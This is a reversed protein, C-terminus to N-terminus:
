RDRPADSDPKSADDGFVPEQWAGVLFVIGISAALFLGIETYDASNAGDVAIRPVTELYMMALAGWLACQLGGFRGLWSTAALVSLLFLVSEPRSGLAGRLSFQVILAAASLVLPACVRVWRPPRRIWIPLRKM